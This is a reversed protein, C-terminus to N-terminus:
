PIRGGISMSIALIGLLKSCRGDTFKTISPLWLVWDSEGTSQTDCACFTFGPQTCWRCSIWSQPWLVPMCGNTYLSMSTGDWWSRWRAIRIITGKNM